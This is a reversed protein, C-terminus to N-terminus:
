NFKRILDRNARQTVDFHTAIDGVKRGGQFQGIGLSRQLNSLRPMIAFATDFFIVMDICRRAFVLYLWVFGDLMVWLGLQGGSTSTYAHAQFQSLGVGFKVCEQNRLTM